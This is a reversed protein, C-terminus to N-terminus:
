AAACIGGGAAHRYQRVLCVRRGTDIAVVAAGGPHHIVDLTVRQGNPLQVVEINGTVVRGRFKTESSILV